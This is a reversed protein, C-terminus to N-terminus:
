DTVWTICQFNQCLKNRQKNTQKKKKKKYIFFKIILIVLSCESYNRRYIFNYIRTTHM